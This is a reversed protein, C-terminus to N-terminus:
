SSLSSLWASFIKGYSETIEREAARLSSQKAGDANVGGDGNKISFPLLVANKATDTLQANVTWNVYKYRPHSVPSDNFTIKIYLAYRSGNAAGDRAIVTQFGQQNIVRQFAGTIRNEQDGNSHIAITINSAIRQAELSYFSGRKQDPVKGRNDAVSVVNIYVQNAEAIIAALRYRAFGNFTYTDAEDVNTLMEIINQNAAIIGTYIAITKERDM